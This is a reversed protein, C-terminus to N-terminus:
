IRNTKGLSEAIEKMKFWDDKNFTTNSTVVPIDFEGIAEEQMNWKTKQDYLPTGRLLMLPWATVKKCGNELLFDISRCFSDVTQNPLGYILSVEYSVQRENLVKLQEQIIEINNKRDIVSYEESITTQLGFELHSNTAEVLELFTKGDSKALLEVKSQFSFTTGAFNLDKIKQLISVYDKGMNFIPDLVNVKRVKKARFYELENFLKDTKLYNVRGNELNRHACFSCSFPCGRKTEWRIMKQESSVNLEGSLYPSTLTDFDISDNYYCQQNTTLMLNLVSREAYGSIFVDANPYLNKLQIRDAYTIQAGGLIILNKYGCSRLYNILPNVFYENWIFCSIFIFDYELVQLHGLENEFDFVNQKTLLNVSHHNVDFENGYGPNSKIFALISAVSLPKEVEGDRILDYSLILSRKL